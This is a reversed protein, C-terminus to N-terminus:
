YYAFKYYLARTVLLVMSLSTEFLLLLVGIMAVVDGPSASAVTEDDIEIPIWDSLFSFNAQGDAVIIHPTEPIWGLQVNSREVGMMEAYVSQEVPMLGGNALLVILNALAGALLINAARFIKGVFYLGVVIIAILTPEVIRVFDEQFFIIEIPSRGKDILLLVFWVVDDLL